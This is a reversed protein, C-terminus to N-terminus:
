DETPAVLFPNLHLFEFALLIFLLGLVQPAAFSAIENSEILMLFLTFYWKSHKHRDRHKHPFISLLWGKFRAGKFAAM